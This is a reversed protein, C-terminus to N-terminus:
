FTFAVQFYGGHDRTSGAGRLWTRYELKVAAFPSAEYRIGLTSGDLNRVAAFTLEV